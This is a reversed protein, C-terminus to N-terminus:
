PKQNMVIVREHDSPHLAFLPRRARRHLGAQSWELLYVARPRRGAGARASTSTGALHAEHDSVDRYKTPKSFLLELNM